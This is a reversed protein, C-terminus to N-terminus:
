SQQNHLAHKKYLIEKYVWGPWHGQERELQFSLETEFGNYLDEAWADILRKINYDADNIAELLRPHRTPCKEDAITNIAYATFADYGYKLDTLVLKSSKYPMRVNRARHALWAAREYVWSELPVDTKFEKLISKM